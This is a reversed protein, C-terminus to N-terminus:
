SSASASASTSTRRSSRSSARLEARVKYRGPTLFPAFFRGDSDTVFTEHGPGTVTVTAGPVAAGQADVVQGTISGTTEQAWIRGRGARALPGRLPCEHSKM